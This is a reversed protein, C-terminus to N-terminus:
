RKVNNNPIQGFIVEKVHVRSVGASRWLGTSQLLGEIAIVRRRTKRQRTRRSLGGSPYMTWPRDHRPSFLEPVRQLSSSRVRLRIAHRRYPLNKENINFSITVAELWRLFLFFLLAVMIMLRPMMMMRMMMVIRRMMIVLMTVMMKIMSRLIQGLGCSVALM